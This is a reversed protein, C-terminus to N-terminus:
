NPNKKNQVKYSSEYVGDLLEIITDEDDTNSPVIRELRNVLHHLRHFCEGYMLFNNEGKAKYFKNQIDEYIELCCKLENNPDNNTTKPAAQSGTLEKKLFERLTATKQRLNSLGFVGRINLEHELEAPRLLTPYDYIFTPDM